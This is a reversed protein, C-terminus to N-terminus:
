NRKYLEGVYFYNMFPFNIAKQPITKKEFTM